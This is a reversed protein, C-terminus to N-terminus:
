DAGLNAFFDDSDIIEETTSDVPKLEPPEYTPPVNGFDHTSKQPQQAQTQQYTPRAVGETVGENVISKTKTEGSVELPQGTFMNKGSLNEYYEVIKAYPLIEEQKVEYEDLTYLNAYVEGIEEDTMEVFKNITRDFRSIRSKTYFSSDTQKIYGKNMVGTFKFDAGEFPDFVNIGPIEGERIDVKKQMAKVIKEMILKGFKFRFVKGETEPANDNKVIYVNSIYEPNAYGLSLQIAVDKDYKKFKERNSECVPCKEGFKAACDVVFWKDKNVVKHFHKRNEIFPKHESYHSPLFRLIIEYSDSVLKPKFLNEVKYERKTFQQQQQQGQEKELVSSFYSSLDRKIPNTM